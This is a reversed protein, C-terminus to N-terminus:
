LLGSAYAPPRRAKMTRMCALGDQYERALGKVGVGFARQHAHVQAPDGSSRHAAVADPRDQPSPPVLLPRNREVSQEIARIIRVDAL